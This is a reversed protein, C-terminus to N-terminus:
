AADMPREGDERGGKVVALTEQVDTMRRNYMSTVAEEVAREDMRKRLEGEIHEKKLGETKRATKRVLRGGTWACEDIGHDQMHQLIAGQMERTRKRMERLTAAAASQAAHARSFEAVLARFQESEM